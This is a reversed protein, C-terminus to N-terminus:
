VFEGETWETTAIIKHKYSAKSTYEDWHEKPVSNIESDYGSVYTVVVGSRPKPPEEIKYGLSTLHSVALSTEDLHSVHYEYWWGGKGNPLNVGKGRAGYLNKNEVEVALNDGDIQRLTGILFIDEKCINILNQCQKLNVEVKDGIKFETM